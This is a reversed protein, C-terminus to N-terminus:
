YVPYREAVKKAMHWGRFSAGLQYTGADFVQAGLVIQGGDPVDIRMTEGTFTGSVSAAARPTLRLASFGPVPGGDIRVTFRVDTSILMDNVVITIERIWGIDNAPLTFSALTVFGTVSTVGTTSGEQFFNVAERAQFFSPPLLIQGAIGVDELAAPRPSGPGLRQRKGLVGPYERAEIDTPPRRTM